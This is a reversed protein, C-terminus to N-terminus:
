HSGGGRVVGGAQWGDYMALPPFADPDVVVDVVTPRGSDLARQLAPGIEDPATVRIGECRLVWALAAYDVDLLDTEIARGFHLQEAHKQFGFTSNNLVVVVLPIQYRAATELEQYVYGFGGDGTLCLVRKDPLALKAGIAAPLGWGIGAFGRPALFRRGPERFPVLDMAWASSYSADTCVITDDSVHEILEAVVREPRVPSAASRFLPAYAARWEGVAIELDTASDHRPAQPLERLATVLAALALKADGVVGLSPYNRGIEAPDVDIHVITSAPDPVTWNATAISDTKTGVLLVVDAAQVLDNAIKGRGLAGGTYAGTVGASLPHTEDFSGKGLPTTAVPAGLLEALEALEAWARSILVGGGAVIAPRTAAALVRAAEAIAGPDSAVRARPYTAPMSATQASGGAIEATLVDDPYSVLVPGPRGSMAVEFARLTLEAVREPQEVRVAWKTVPAALALHDLEQVPNKGRQNTRIDNVLAVVPTSTARAEALGSVLNTVGPGRIATCVGPRGSVRAYADAMIAGAREDRVTIPRIQERELEAYLPEPSDIGFLHTVGLSRLARYLARAGTMPGAPASDAM